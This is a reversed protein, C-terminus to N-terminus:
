TSGLDTISKGIRKAQRVHQKGTPRRLQLEGSHNAPVEFARNRTHDVQHAWALRKAQV